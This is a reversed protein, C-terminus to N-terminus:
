INQIETDTRVEDLVPSAIEDFIMQQDAAPSFVGDFSYMKNSLANPRMSLEVTKSKIGNTRVVVSSNEQLERENRGRCRVFVDIKTEDSSAQHKTRPMIINDRSDNKRTSPKMETGLESPIVPIVSSTTKNPHTISADRDSSTSAVSPATTPPIAKYRSRLKTIAPNKM